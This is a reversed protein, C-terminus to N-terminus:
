EGSRVVAQESAELGGIRISGTDLQILWVASM